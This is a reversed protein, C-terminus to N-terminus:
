RKEPLKAPYGAAATSKRTVDPSGDCSAFADSDDADQKRVSYQKVEGGSHVVVATSQGAIANQRAIEPSVDCGSM